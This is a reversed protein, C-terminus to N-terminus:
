HPHVGSQQSAAETENQKSTIIRRAVELGEEKTSFEGSLQREMLDKLVAGLAKGPPLGFSTILDRGLVLPKPKSYLVNAQEARAKLWQIVEPDPPMTPGRGSQDFWVLKCLLDLKVEMALRRITSLEAGSRHFAYPKMHHKVLRLVEEVLKPENTLRALFSVAHEVRNEHNHNTWHPVLNNKTPGYVATLPKGLDHCLAALGLTLREEDDAFEGQAFADAVLCTHEFVDGEPHWAPTQQSGILLHLEPYFRELWGTDRLFRLAKGIHRGKLLLKKWEEWIRERPLHEQSLGRCAELCADTADLDFRAVFQMGRLVRLPDESFKDSVPQLIGCAMHERGNYPDDWKDTLPDWSIANITFDRRAAAEHLTMGPDPLIEFDKHGQGTKVERRPISIDVPEGHLKLVGFSKGVEDVRWRTELAEKLVPMGLGFVEIDVDKLELRGGYERFRWLDRAAGGVVYARGGMNQVKQCVEYALSWSQDLEM